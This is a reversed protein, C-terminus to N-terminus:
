KEAKIPLKLAKQLLEELEAIQFPKTLTGVIKKGKGTAVHNAMELYGADYGSMLIIPTRCNQESLWYLLEVGDMDPMVLDMVIVTPKCGAWVAQFEKGSSTTRTDFGSLHAVEIVLDAMEPEDDVVILLPKSMIEGEEGGPLVGSSSLAARFLARVPVFRRLLDGTGVMSWYCHRHM